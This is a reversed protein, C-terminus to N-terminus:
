ARVFNRVQNLWRTYEAQEKHEIYDPIFLAMEGDIGREELYKEFSAKLDDDLFGFTPGMYYGRRQYDAEATQNKAMKNDEYVSIHDVGYDGDEATLDFSLTPQGPKEILVNFRVPYSSTPFDVDEDEMEAVQEESGLEKPNPAENNEMITDEANLIESASFTVTITETGFTRTLQVENHGPADQIKFLGSENFKTLFDPLETSKNEQEFSLEKELCHALDQDTVGQSARFASMTLGRVGSFSTVALRVAQREMATSIASPSRLQVARVRKAATQALSTLRTTSRLM